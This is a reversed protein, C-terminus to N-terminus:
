PPSKLIIEVLFFKYQIKLEFVVDYKGPIQMQWM